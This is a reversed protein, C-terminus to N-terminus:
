PESRESGEGAVRSLRITVRIRSAPQIKMPLVLVGSNPKPECVKLSTKPAVQLAHSGDFLAPPLLPPAATAKAWRMNGMASPDSKMPLKRLGAPHFWTNPMRGECPLNGLYGM